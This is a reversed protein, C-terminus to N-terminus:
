QNKKETKKGKGHPMKVVTGDAKTIQKVSLATGHSWSGGSGELTIEDGKKLGSKALDGRTWGIEGGDLVVAVKRDRGDILFGAITGSTKMKAPKATAGPYTTVNSKGTTDIITDMGKRIMPRVYITGDPLAHEVAEVHIVDGQALKGADIAYGRGPFRVEAGNGLIMGVLDGRPSVIWRAFTSEFSVRAKNEKKKANAVIGSPDNKPAAFAVTSAGLASVALALISLTKTIKNM